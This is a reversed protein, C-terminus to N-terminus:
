RHDYKMFQFGCSRDPSDFRLSLNITTQVDLYVIPAGNFNETPYPENSGVPIIQMSIGTCQSSPYAVFAHRGPGTSTVLTAPTRHGAHLPKPDMAPFYGNLKLAEDGAQKRALQDQVDESLQISPMPRNQFPEVLQAQAILPLWYTLALLTFRHMSRRGKHLPVSPCRRAVMHNNM